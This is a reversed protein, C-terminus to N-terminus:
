ANPECHTTWGGPSRPTDMRQGSPRKSFVAVECKNTNLQLRADESWRYVRDVEAQLKATTLEKNAGRCAIALGDTNANVLTTDDFKDLLDNIFIIFLLPSLVSGQPLGEKFNHCRGLTGNVRVRALRNALCAKVWEIFRHPIGLQQMKRLLGSRWVTDYAKWYDFFCAVTKERRSAM